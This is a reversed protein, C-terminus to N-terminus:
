PNSKYRNSGFGSSGSSLKMELGTVFTDFNKELCFFRLFMGDLVVSAIKIPYKSLSNSSSNLSLNSATLLSKQSTSLRGGMSEDRLLCQEM